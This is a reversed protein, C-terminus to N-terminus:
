TYDIDVPLQLQELQQIVSLAKNVALTVADLSVTASSIGDISQSAITGSRGVYQGLIDEHFVKDGIGKTENQSIVAVGTVAGSYDVGVLLSIEGAFAPVSVYVCYGLEESDAYAHYIQEIGEVLYPTESLFNAQPMAQSLLELSSEETARHRALSTLSQTLYICGLVSTFILTYSLISKAKQPLHEVFGEGLANGDQNILSIEQIKEVTSSFRDSWYDSSFLTSKLKNGLSAWHHKKPLTVQVHSIRRSIWRFFVRSHAFSEQGFQRPMGLHDFLWVIANMSLIAFGIGEPYSGYGRLLYCITGISIGFCLQGRPTMPSTVPDTAFFFAGLLLGGSCLHYYMWTVSPIDTPALVYSWLAVTALISLPITPAIVRRLILYIGGLLLMITSVEGMSGGYFGLVMEEPSLPPLIGQHLYTLPTAQSMGDVLNAEIMPKPQPFNLMLQPSTALIMRATLAPNLFNKGLGGYLNKVLIIALFAGLPTAWLPLDPPSSFALLLGTVLPSIDLEELPGLPHKGKWLDWLTQFLLAFFMYSLSRWLVQLGFLYVAMALAPVLAVLVDITMAQVSTPASLKPSIPYRYTNM